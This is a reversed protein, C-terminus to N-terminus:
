CSPRMWWSARSYGGYTLGGPHKDEGNYTFTPLNATSSKGAQCTACTRCSDVMCGVAAIDGDQIQDRRLGHRGASSRTGPVCPVITNHWENRAQHLDSHCVGCYLIDIHVDTPAPNM